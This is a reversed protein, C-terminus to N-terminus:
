LSLPTLLTAEGAFDCSLFSLSSSCFDAIIGQVGVYSYSFFVCYYFGCGDLSSLLCLIVRDVQKANNM